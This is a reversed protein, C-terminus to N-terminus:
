FFTNNKLNKFGRRSRPPRAALKFVDFGDLDLLFMCFVSCIVDVILFIGFFGLIQNAMYLYICIFLCAASGKLERLCMKNKQFHHRKYSRM